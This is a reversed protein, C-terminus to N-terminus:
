KPIVLNISKGRVYVDFDEYDEGYENFLRVRYSGRDAKTAQRRCVVAATEMVDLTTRMDAPLPVGNFILQVEAEPMCRLKLQFMLTDHADVDLNKKGEAPREIIPPGHIDVVTSSEVEDM